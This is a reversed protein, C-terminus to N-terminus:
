QTLHCLTCVAPQTYAPFWPLLRPCMPLENIHSSRFPFSALLSFLSLLNTCLIYTICTLWNHTTINIINFIQVHKKKKEFDWFVKTKHEDEQNEQPEPHLVRLLSAWVAREGSVEMLVRLANGWSLSIIEETHGQNAGSHRWLYVYRSVERSLCRHSMRGFALAVVFLEKKSM